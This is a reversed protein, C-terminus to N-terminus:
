NGLAKDLDTKSKLLDYQAQMLNQQTQYLATEAQIMEVSSGIGEKYKIKSTNFIREALALNKKQSAVRINASKYMVRANAVQLTIARELDIKQNKTIESALNARQLTYKLGGGGWIPVSVKAGVVGTPLFFYDDKKFSNGQFGYSYSGFAAVTPLTSAKTLTINLNQLKEGAGVVNYEPRKEFQIAGELDEKSAEKLLGNLDDKVDLNENIPMGMVFKLANLVVEKQRVLNERETRINELSLTLRDIDLSEVFGEKNFAKTEGLLKELNAINKDFTKVSENILLTPLYADMVQNRVEAKKSLLQKDVLDRYYTAARLAVNYSGSYVLQSVSLGPTISHTQVFSVKTPTPEPANPDPAPPGTIVAGSKDKVGEQALIGYVALLTGNSFSAPFVVKPKQFFSQWDLTAGVQPLGTARREKIQADADSIGLQSNRIGLSHQMAYKVADDLSFQTQAFTTNAALVLIFLLIKISKM